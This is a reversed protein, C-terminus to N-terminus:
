SKIAARIHKLRNFKAKLASEVVPPVLGKVCGGVSAVQRVVRSSLFCYETAAMLFITELEGALKKNMMSMQFEQEFDSVVRLGRVIACAGQQRAFEVLMGDFTKVEVRPLDKISTRVLEVREGLTFLREKSPDQAVAVIVKDFLKCSRQIVDLHGLTIPDFVGPYIAIRM